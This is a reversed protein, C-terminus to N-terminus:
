NHYVSFYYLCSKEGAGLGLRLCVPSHTTDVDPFGTADRHCVQERYLGPGHAKNLSITHIISM